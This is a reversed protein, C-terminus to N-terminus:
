HSATIVEQMREFYDANFSGRSSDVSMESVSEGDNVWFGSNRAGTVPRDRDPRLINGDKGRWWESSLFRRLKGSGSEASPTRSRRPGISFKRVSRREKRPRAGDDEKKSMKEM